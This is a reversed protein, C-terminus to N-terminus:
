RERKKDSEAAAPRWNLPLGHEMRYKEAALRQTEKDRAAVMELEAQQEKDFAAAGRATMARMTGGQHNPRTCLLCAFGAEKDPGLKVRWGCSSCIWYTHAPRNARREMILTALGELEEATAWRTIIQLPTLAPPENDRGLQGSQVRPGTGAVVQGPEHHPLESTIVHPREPHVEVRDNDDRPIIPLGDDKKEIMKEEKTLTHM